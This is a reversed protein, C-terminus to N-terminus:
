IKRIAHMIGIEIGQTSMRMKRGKDENFKVNQFEFGDFEKQGDILNEQKTANLYHGIKRVQEYQSNILRNLNGKVQEDKLLPNNRYSEIRRLTQIFKPSLYIRNLKHNRWDPIPSHISGKQWSKDRSDSTLGIFSSSKLLDIKDRYKLTDNLKNTFLFDMRLLEKNLEYVGKYDFISDVSNLDIEENFLNVENYFKLTDIQEDTYISKDFIRPFRRELSKPNIKSVPNRTKTIFDQNNNGIPFYKNASLLIFTTILLITSFVFGIVSLPKHRVDFYNLAFKLIVKPLFILKIILAALLYIWIWISTFFASYVFVSFPFSMKWNAKPTGEFEIHDQVPISYWSDLFSFHYLDSMLYKSGLKTGIILFTAIILFTLFFDLILLFIKKMIGETKDMIGLIFRTELLSLYDPIITFVIIFPLIDKLIDIGALDFDPVNNYNIKYYILYTLSFISISFLISMLFCRLSFHKKSFLRDFIDLFPNIISNKSDKTGLLWKVLEKKKSRLLYTDAEKFMRYTGWSLVIAIGYIAIM